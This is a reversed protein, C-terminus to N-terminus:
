TPAFTRRADWSSCWRIETRYNRSYGFGARPYKGIAKVCQDWDTNLSRAAACKQQFSKWRNSEAAEFTALRTLLVKNEETLQSNVRDLEKADRMPQLEARLAAIEGRLQNRENLLGRIDRKLQRERKTSEALPAVTGGTAVPQAKEPVMATSPMEMDSTVAQNM